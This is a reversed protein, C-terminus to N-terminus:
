CSQSKETGYNCRQGCPYVAVVKILSCQSVCPPVFVFVISPKMLLELYRRETWDVVIRPMIFLMITIGHCQLRDLCIGAYWSSRNQADLIVSM